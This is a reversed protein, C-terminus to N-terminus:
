ALSTSISLILFRKIDGCAIIIMLLNQWSNQSVFGTILAAFGSSEWLNLLIQGINM